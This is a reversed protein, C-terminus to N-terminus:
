HAVHVVLSQSDKVEWTRVSRSAMAEKARQIQSDLEQFEADIPSLENEWYEIAKDMDERNNKYQVLKRHLNDDDSHAPDQIMREVNSIEVDAAHVQEKRQRISRLLAARHRSIAVMRSELRLKDIEGAQAQMTNGEYTLRHGGDTEGITWRGGKDDVREQFVVNGKYTGPYKRMQRAMILMAAGQEPISDPDVPPTLDTGGRQMDSIGTEQAEEQAEVEALAGIAFGTGKRVLSHLEAEANKMKQEARWKRKREADTLKPSPSAAAAAADM